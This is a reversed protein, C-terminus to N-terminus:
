NALSSGHFPANGWSVPTINNKAVIEHLDGSKLLQLEYERKLWENDSDSPKSGTPYSPHLFMETIGPTINNLENIYYTRLSDYSKIKKIPYPNSFIDDLLSVDYRKAVNVLISHALILAAPAKGGFQRALFTPKKPFRYPLNHNKCFRFANIFFLRGNIGYLTGCHNDAHDPTCGNDVMFQYQAEIEATVDKSRAKIALKKMDYLLGKDDNLSKAISNSHWRNMNDDSNITLHVGVPLKHVHSLTAAEKSYPAVTLLSASTILGKNFLEIVATNSSEHVGFDDANIILYKGKKNSLLVSGVIQFLIDIESLIIDNIGSNTFM